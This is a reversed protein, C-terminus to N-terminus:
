TNRARELVYRTLGTRSTIGLRQYIRQLHTTVTRQSIFLREAIETNSLGEAVLQAIEAERPSLEDPRRGRPAAAPRVGFRRLLQRARDAAPRAGLRDFLVLDESVHDTGDTETWDLRTVAAEFPMALGAFAEAASGFAEAAAGADGEARAALGRIRTAVAAPYPAGPGHRALLAATDRAGAPDGAAVQAEGLVGLCLAPVAVGSPQISRAVRLASEGDGRGLSIMAACVEGISLLHRDATFGEAYVSEAERLCATADGYQGRRAHVLARLCLAAAAGRRMGTRHSDALIRDAATGAEDWRGAVFDAFAQFVSTLIDLAPVGIERALRQAEAGFRRASDQDGWAMARCVAPRHAEELLLLSNEDRALRMVATIARDAADYDGSHLYLDVGAWRAFVRDRPSGTADAMRDLESVDARLEALLGRRARMRVRAVLVALHEPDIPTGALTAMAEDIHTHSDALRGADWEVVALRRLRHARDKTSEAAEAAARWADIAAEVPGALELAEARQARLRSLLYAHGGQQALAMAAEAHAAAEAGARSDLAAETAAMLVDLATQPDVEDAAGRVHHALRGADPRALRQLAAAIAAHTRRRAVTPLDSYAVETLLPHTVQYHVGADGLEEVLLGAGRLRKLCGLLDDQDSHLAALLDHGTRGRAVAVTDFVRRDNAPLVDLRSRLLGILEPPLDDVPGPGLVWRGGSRFLRGSDILM